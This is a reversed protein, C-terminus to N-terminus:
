NTAVSAEVKSESEFLKGHDEKNRNARVFHKTNEM